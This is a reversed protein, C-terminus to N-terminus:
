RFLSGNNWIEHETLMELALDCFILLMRLTFENHMVTILVQLRHSLASHTRKQVSKLGM